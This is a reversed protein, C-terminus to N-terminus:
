LKCLSLLMGLSKSLQGGRGSHFSKVLDKESWRCKEGM